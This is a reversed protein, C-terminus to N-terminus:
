SLCRLLTIALAQWFSPLVFSAWAEWLRFTFNQTRFLSFFLQSIWAVYFFPDSLDLLFFDRDKRDTCITWRRSTSFAITIHRVTGGGEVSGIM